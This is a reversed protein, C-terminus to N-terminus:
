SVLRRCVSAYVARTRTAVQEWGFEQEIRARAAVVARQEEDWHDLLDLIERGLAAPDAPPVLRGVGARAVVEPLAGAESAVIPTGAALAEVAPLGFGEFLSPIIVATADRLGCELERRPVKGDFRVRGALDLKRMRM